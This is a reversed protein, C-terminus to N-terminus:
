IVTPSIKDVTYSLTNSTQNLHAELDQTVGAPILVEVTGSAATAISPTLTFNYDAGSGTVVGVSANTVQVGTLDLGLVAKSFHATVAITGNTPNPTSSSLIVSASLTDDLAPARNLSSGTVITCSSLVCLWCLYFIGKLYFQLTRVLLLKNM